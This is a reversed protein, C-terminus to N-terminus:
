ISSIIPTAVHYLAGYLAINILLVAVHSVFLATKTKPMIQKEGEKFWEENNFYTSQKISIIFVLPVFIPLVQFLMLLLASLNLYTSTVFYKKEEKNIIKDRNKIWSKVSFAIYIASLTIIILNILSNSLM